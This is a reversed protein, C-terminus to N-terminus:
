WRSIDNSQWRFKMNTLESLEKNFPSFYNELADQVRATINTKGRLNHCVEREQFRFCFRHRENDFFFMDKRFWRRIGIFREAQQLPEWPTEKFATGDLILLQEPSILTLWRSVHDVYRSVQFMITVHVNLRSLDGDTPNSTWCRALYSSLM